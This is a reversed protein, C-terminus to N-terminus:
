KPESGSKIATKMTFSPHQGPATVVNLVDFTLAVEPIRPGTKVLVQISHHAPIVVLNARDHFRFDSTNSLTFDSESKNEIRIDLISTDGQYAASTISLSAEVLPMVHELRGILTNQYWAVTRRALLAEKIGSETREKAFVITVPRHGGGPVDFQWDILSHIDSTGIIALNYKLAIELAEDSYTIDNVVEIGQIQGKEIMALNIEELRAVGDKRQATWNPHNMFTFGGQKQAEAYAVEANETVLPNADSIFITNAHGFPLARTIESGRIVILDSNAATSLAIDFARNRDPFPIDAKHPLYELHETVAICDLNDKQAEQVRTNPWVDGDSFVSHMHFDCTLSFFGNVDPFEIARVAGHTHGSQGFSLPASFILLLYVVAQRKSLWNLSPILTGRRASLAVQFSESSM